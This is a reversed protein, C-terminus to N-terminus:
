MFWNTPNSSFSISPNTDTGDQVLLGSNNITLRNSGGTSIGLQNSGVRYIGTAENGDFVLSLHHKQEM